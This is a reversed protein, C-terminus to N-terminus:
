HLWDVYRDGAYVYHKEEVRNGEMCARAADQDAEYECIRVPVGLARLTSKLQNIVLPPVALDRQVTRGDTDDLTTNYVNEWMEERRKRRKEATANKMRSEIAVLHRMSLNCETSLEPLKKGQNERSKQILRGFQKAVKIEQLSFM